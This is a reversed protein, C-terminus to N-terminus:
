VFDAEVVFRSHKSDLQKKPDCAAIVAELSDRQEVASQAAKAKVRGNGRATPKTHCHRKAGQKKHTASSRSM